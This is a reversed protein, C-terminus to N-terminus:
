PPHPHVPQVGSPLHARHQAQHARREVPHALIPAPTTLFRSFSKALASTLAISPNSHLRATACSAARALCCPLLLVAPSTQWAACGPPESGAGVLRTGISLDHPPREEPTSCTPWSQLDRVAARRTCSSTSPQAAWSAEQGRRRARAHRALQAQGPPGHHLQGHGVLVQVQWCCDHQMHKVLRTQPVQTCCEPPTWCARSPCCCCHLPRCSPRM